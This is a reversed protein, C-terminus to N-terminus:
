GTQKNLFERSVEQVEQVAELAALLGKRPSSVGFAEHARGALKLNDLVAERLDAYIKRGNGQGVGELLRDQHDIVVRGAKLNVLHGLIMAADRWDGGPVIDVIFEDQKDERLTLFMAGLFNEAVKVVLKRYLDRDLKWGDKWLEPLTPLGLVELLGKLGIRYPEKQKEVM